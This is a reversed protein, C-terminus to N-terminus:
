LIRRLGIKISLESVVATFPMIGQKTSSGKPKMMVGCGDLRGNRAGAIVPVSVEAFARYRRDIVAPNGCEGFSEPDSVAAVIRTAPKKCLNRIPNRAADYVGAATTEVDREYRFSHNPM